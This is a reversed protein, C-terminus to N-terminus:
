EKQQVYKMVRLISLAKLFSMYSRRDHSMFVLILGPLLLICWTVKSLHECFGNSGM